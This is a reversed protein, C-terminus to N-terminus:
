MFIFMVRRYVLMYTPFAVKQPDNDVLPKRSDKWMDVGQGDIDMFCMSIWSSHDKILEKAWKSGHFMGEQLKVYSHFIAM